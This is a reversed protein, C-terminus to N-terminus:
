KTQTAQKILNPKALSQLSPKPQKYQTTNAKDLSPLGESKYANVNRLSSWPTSATPYPVAVWSFPLLLTTKM